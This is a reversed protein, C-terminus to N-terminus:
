GRVWARRSFWLVGAGLLVLVAIAVGFPVFGFGTFTPSGALTFTRTIVVDGCTAAVTYEGGTPYTHDVPNGEGVGTDGYEWTCAAPVCTATFQGTLGSAAVTIAPACGATTTNTSDPESQALAVTPMATFTALILLGFLRRM